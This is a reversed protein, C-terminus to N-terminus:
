RFPKPTLFYFLTLLQLKHTFDVYASVVRKVGGGGFTGKVNRLLQKGKRETITGPRSIRYKRFM